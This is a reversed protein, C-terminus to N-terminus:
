GRLMSFSWLPSLVGLEQQTNFYTISLWESCPASWRKGWETASLKTYQLASLERGPRNGAPPCKASSNTDWGESTQKLLVLIRLPHSGADQCRLAFGHCVAGVLWLDEVDKWEQSHFIPVRCRLHSGIVFGHFHVRFTKHWRPTCFFVLWLLYRWDQQLLSNATFATNESIFHPILIISAM